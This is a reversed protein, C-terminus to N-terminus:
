PPDLVLTLQLQPLPTVRKAFLRRGGPQNESRIEWGPINEGDANLWSMLSTLPLSAGTVHKTLAEMSAFKQKQSGEELVAGEANWSAVALTTGIPTYITLEGLTPTGQLTFNASFQEPPKSLIKLNLRGEWNGTQALASNKHKSSFVGCGAIAFCLLASLLWNGPLAASQKSM